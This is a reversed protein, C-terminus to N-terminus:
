LKIEIQGLSRKLTISTKVNPWAVGNTTIAKDRSTVCEPTLLYTNSHLLSLASQDIFGVAEYRMPQSMEFSARQLVISGLGDNGKKYAFSRRDPVGLSSTVPITCAIKLLVHINPLMDEDCEKIAQSPGKDAPM